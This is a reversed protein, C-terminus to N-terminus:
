TGITIKQMDKLDDGLAKLADEETNGQGKCYNECEAFEPDFPSVIAPWGEPRNFGAGFLSVGVRAEWSGDSLQRVQVETTKSVGICSCMIGSFEEESIIKCGPIYSKQYEPNASHPKTM